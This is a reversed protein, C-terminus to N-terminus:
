DFYDYEGRYEPLMEHRMNFREWSATEQRAEHEEFSSNGTDEEVPIFRDMEDAALQLHTGVTAELDDLRVQIDQIQRDFLLLHALVENNVQGQTLALDELIRVAKTMEDFSDFGQRM